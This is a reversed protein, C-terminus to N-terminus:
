LRRGVHEFSQDAGEAGHQNSDCKIAHKAEQDQGANAQADDVLLQGVVGRHRGFEVPQLEVGEAQLQCQPAQANALRALLLDAELPQVGIQLGVAQPCFGQVQGGYLQVLGLGFQQEVLVTGEVQGLQELQGGTLGDRGIGLAFRERQADVVDLQRATVQVEGIHAGAFRDFEEIVRHVQLQFVEAGQGIVVGVHGQHSCAGCAPPNVPGAGQAQHGNGRGAFQFDGIALHFDPPGIHAIRQWQCKFVAYQIEAGVVGQVQGFFGLHDQAIGRGADCREFDIGGIAARQDTQLAQLDAVGADVQGFLFHYDALDVALVEFGPGGPFFVALKVPM